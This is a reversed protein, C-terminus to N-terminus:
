SNLPEVFSMLESYKEQVEPHVLDFFEFHEPGQMMPEAEASYHHPGYLNRNGITMVVQISNEGINVYDSIDLKNSLLMNGVYEGNISIEAAHWRGSLELIVNKDACEFKSSLCIKGAFFPFGNEVLGDLCQPAETIYFEKGYLTNEANKFGNKEYVGFKGKLILPTLETNYVLCNKMSETVNEGFLVDYVNKNQFYDIEFEINNEGLKLLNIIENNSHKIGNIYVNKIGDVNMEYSLNEPIKEVEFSYKLRLNGEFREKLLQIFAMPVSIEEGYDNGNKSMKLVDITLYNEEFSEVKYENKLTITNYDNEIISNEKCPVLVFSEGPELTFELPLIRESEDVLSVAKFSKYDDSSAFTVNCAEELSHNMAFIFDQGDKNFSGMCFRGGNYDYSYSRSDLIEQWTINSELYTYECEKWEVYQPKGHSLYVRGGNKVYESLLEQTNADVTICYPLVLIDYSCKGCVIMDKDISGHKELLTEDLLHYEVGATELKLLLDAYKEDLDTIGFGEDMLEHNYDFYASRIPQLVAVRPTKQSQALLAGLKTFYDNFTKFYNKVWPNIDSYHAPYDHIRNGKESYPLLHQCTLNIGNLYMYETMRKLERPTVDWGCGAYMECLVQEKGLQAAVSSVQKMAVPSDCVRSLWDIGPIHEYEYFPMIGACCMMQGGLSVEEIYHGTFLKGNEECWNYVMKSFAELMLRQMGRWYLYRFRRYGKKKLILLGLGDLIDENLVDAFYKKIIDTYPLNWRQYQPEDSFFGKLKDSFSLGLKQKYQEHTLDIFKQVVEPNLVDATSTAINEFVNLYEKGEAAESCRILEDGNIIYNVLANSEFEGITYTLYKDRNQPEELLKGGVFGSPWGNEDYLWPDMGIKKAYDICSKVCDMWEDSLYETILGSRAHMFFGGIGNKKMWEIQNLLKDIELKDNWSWFPVSKYKTLDEDTLNLFNM